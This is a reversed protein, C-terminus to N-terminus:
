KSLNSADETRSQNFLPICIFVVFALSNVIVSYIPRCLSMIERLSNAWGERDKAAVQLAIPGVYRQGAEKERAKSSSRRGAVTEPKWRVCDM